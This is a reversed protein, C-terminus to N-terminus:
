TMIIMILNCPDAVIMDWALSWARAPEGSGDSPVITCAETPNEGGRSCCAGGESRLNHTYPTYDVPCPTTSLSSHPPICRPTPHYVASRPATSLPAHPPLCRPAHPPLCRPMPHYVTPCPTTSLPANPPICRPLPHLCRPPLCRLMPHYHPLCCQQVQLGGWTSRTCGSMAWTM